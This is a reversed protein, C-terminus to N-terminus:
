RARPSKMMEFKEHFITAEQNTQIETSTLTVSLIHFNHEIVKLDSIKPMQRAAINKTNFDISLELFIM